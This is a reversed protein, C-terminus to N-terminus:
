LGLEEATKDISSSVTRGRKRALAPDKLNLVPIFQSDREVHWQRWASLSIIEGDENRHDLKEQVLRMAPQLASGKSPEVRKGFLYLGDRRVEATAHPRSNRKANESLFLFISEGVRLQAGQGLDFTASHNRESRDLPTHNAADNDRLRSLVRVIIDSKTDDPSIRFSEILTAAQQTLGAFEVFM